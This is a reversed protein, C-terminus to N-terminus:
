PSIILLLVESKAILNSPSLGIVYIEVYVKKEALDFNCFLIHYFPIGHIAMAMWNLKTQILFTAGGLANWFVFSTLEFADPKFLNADM